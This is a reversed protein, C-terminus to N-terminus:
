SVCSLNDSNPLLSSTAFQDFFYLLLTVLKLKFVAEESTERCERILVEFYGKSM